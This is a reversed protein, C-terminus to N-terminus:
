YDKFNVMWSAKSEWESRTVGGALTWPGNTDFDRSWKLIYLEKLGIKRVSYDLFLCNIGGEHRNKMFRAMLSGLSYNEDDYSAPFDYESPWTDIWPADLLLPINGVGKVGAQRWRWNPADSHISLTFDDECQNHEVWGNIGYSGYVSGTPGLWGHASWALFTAGGEWYLSESM